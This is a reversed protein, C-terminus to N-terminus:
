VIPLRFIESHKVLHMRGLTTMRLTKLNVQILFSGGCGMCTEYILHKEGLDKTNVTMKSQCKPCNIEEYGETTSDSQTDISESGAADKMLEKEGRDFWIGKCGTCRDVEIGNFNVTEMKAKCKPCDM